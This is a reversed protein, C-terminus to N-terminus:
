KKSDQKAYSCLSFKRVNYLTIIRLHLKYQLASFWYELTLAPIRDDHYGHAVSTYYVFSEDIDLFVFNFKGNVLMLMHLPTCFLLDLGGGAM